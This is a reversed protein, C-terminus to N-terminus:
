SDPAHEAEQQRLAAHLAVADARFKAAMVRFIREEEPRGKFKAGLADMMAVLAQDRLWRVRPDLTPPM